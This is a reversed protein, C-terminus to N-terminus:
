DLLAVRLQCGSLTAMGAIIGGVAGSIVITLYPHPLSFLTSVRAAIIDSSTFYKVTAVLTWLLAVGFFGKFFVGIGTKGEVVVFGVVFAAIAMSWWPFFMQTVGCVVILCVISGM